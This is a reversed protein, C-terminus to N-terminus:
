QKYITFLGITPKYMIGLLCWYVLNADGWQGMTNKTARGHAVSGDVHRGSADFPWLHSVLPGFSPWRWFCFGDLSIIWFVNSFIFPPFFVCLIFGYGFRNWELMKFLDTSIKSTRMTTSPRPAHKGSPVHGQRGQGLRSPQSSKQGSSLIAMNM